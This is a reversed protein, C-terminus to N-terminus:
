RTRRLCPGPVDAALWPKMGARIEHPQDFLVIYWTVIHEHSIGGVTGKLVTSPKEWNLNIPFEVRDGIDFDTPNKSAFEM